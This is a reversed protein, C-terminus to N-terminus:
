YMYAITNKGKRNQKIDFYEYKGDNNFDGAFFKYGLKVDKKEVFGGEALVIRKVNGSKTQLYIEKVHDGNLDAVQMGEYEPKQNYSRWVEELGDDDKQFVYIDLGKSDLLIYRPVGSSDIDDIKVIGGVKYYAYNKKIENNELSYIEISNQSTIVINQNDFGISWMPKDFSLSYKLELRDEFKYILLKSMSGKEWWKENNSVLLALEDKKDKDVDGTFMSIIYLGELSIENKILLQDKELSWARLKGNEWSFLYNEGNVRGSYILNPLSTFTMEKFEAKKQLNEINKWVVAKKFVEKENLSYIYNGVMYYAGVLKNQDFIFHGVGATDGNKYKINVTCEVVPSGLYKSFDLGSDKSKKLIDSYYTNEINKPLTINSYNFNSDSQWSKKSLIKTIQENFSEMQEVSLTPKAVPVESKKETCGALFLALLIIILLKKM